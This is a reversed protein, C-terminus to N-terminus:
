RRHHAAPHRHLFEHVNLCSPHPLAPPFRRYETGRLLGAVPHSNRYRGGPESRAGAMAPPMREGYRQLFVAPSMEREFDALLGDFEGALDQWVHLRDKTASADGACRGLTAQLATMFRNRLRLHNLESRRRQWGEMM